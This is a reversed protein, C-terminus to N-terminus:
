IYLSAVVRASQATLVVGLTRMRMQRGIIHLQAINSHLASDPSTRRKVMM